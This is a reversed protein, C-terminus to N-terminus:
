SRSQIYNTSQGASSVAIQDSVGDECPAPVSSVIKFSPKGAGKGKSSSIRAFVTENGFIVELDYRAFGEKGRSRKAFQIHGQNNYVKFSTCKLRREVNFSKRLFKEVEIVEPDNLPRKEEIPIGLSSHDAEVSDSSVSLLKRMSSVTEKGIGFSSQTELSIALRNRGHKHAMVMISLTFFVSLIGRRISQHYSLLPKGTDEEPQVTEGNM